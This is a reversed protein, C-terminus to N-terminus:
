IRRCRKGVKESGQLGRRRNMEAEERDKMVTKRRYIHRGDDTAVSCDARRWKPVISMVPSVKRSRLPAGQSDETWRREGAEM